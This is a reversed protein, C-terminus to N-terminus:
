EKWNLCNNGCSWGLIVICGTGCGFGFQVKKEIDEENEGLSPLIKIEEM